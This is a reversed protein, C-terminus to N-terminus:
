PPMVRRRLVLWRETDLLALDGHQKLLAHIQEHGPQKCVIVVQADRTAAAVVADDHPGFWWVAHAPRQRSRLHSYRYAWFCDVLLVRESHLQSLIPQLLAAASPKPWSGALQVLQARVRALGLLPVPAICALTAIMTLATVTRSVHNLRCARLLADIALAAAVSSLAAPGIPYWPTMGRGLLKNWALYFLPLGLWLVVIRLERRWALWGLLPWLEPGLLMSRAHRLTFPTVSWGQMRLSPISMGVASVTGVYAMPLLCTLWAWADPRTLRGNMQLRVLTAIVPVLVFSEKSWVSAISFLLTWRAEDRAAAWCAALACGAALVDPFVYASYEIHLRHLCLCIAALAASGRSAGLARATWFALLPVTAGLGCGILRFSWLGGYTSAHLSLYYLPRNALHFWPQEAQVGSETGFTRALYWYWADDGIFDGDSFLWRLAFGVGFLLALLGYERARAHDCVGSREAASTDQRPRM